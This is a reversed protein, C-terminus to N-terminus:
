FSTVSTIPLFFGTLTGFFVRIWNMENYNFLCVTLGKGTTTSFQPHRTSNLTGPFRSWQLLLITGLGVMCM